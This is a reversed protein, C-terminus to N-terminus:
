YMIQQLLVSFYLGKLFALLCDVLGGAILLDVETQVSAGVIDYTTLVTALLRVGHSIFNQSATGQRFTLILNEFSTAQSTCKSAPTASLAQACICLLPNQVAVTSSLRRRDTIRSRM